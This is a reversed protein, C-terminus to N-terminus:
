VITVRINYQVVGREKGEIIETMPDRPMIGILYRKKEQNNDKNIYFVASGRSKPFEVVKLFHYHVLQIIQNM